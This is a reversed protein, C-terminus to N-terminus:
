PCETTGTEPLSCSHVGTGCSLDCCLEGAACVAGNCNDPTTGSDPRASGDRVVEGDRPDLVTTGTGCASILVFSFFLARRMPPEGHRVIPRTTRRTPAADIPGAADVGALTSRSAHVRRM